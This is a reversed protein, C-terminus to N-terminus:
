SGRGTSRRSLSASDITLYSLCAVFSYVGGGWGKPLAHYRTCGVGWRGEEWQVISRGGGEGERRGGGGEM